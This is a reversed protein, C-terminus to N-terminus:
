RLKLESVGDMLESVLFVIVCSNQSLFVCGHILVSTLFAVMCMHSNKARFYLWMHTKESLICGTEDSCKQSNREWLVVM